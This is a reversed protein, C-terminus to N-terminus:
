TNFSILIELFNRVLDNHWRHHVKNHAVAYSNPVQGYFPASWWQCIGNLFNFPSKFIGQYNHGEKHILVHMHAMFRFGPGLRLFHYIFVAM